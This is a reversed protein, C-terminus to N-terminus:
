ALHSQQKNAKVLVLLDDIIERLYRLCSESKIVYNFISMNQLQIIMQIDELASVVVLRAQCKMDRIKRILELGFIDPLMMDMIIITPPAEKVAALLETGTAFHRIDIDNRNIFALKIIMGETRNDEVIYILTKETM